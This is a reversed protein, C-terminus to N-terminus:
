VKGVCVELCQCWRMKRLDSGGDINVEYGTSATMGDM